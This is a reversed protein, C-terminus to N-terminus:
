GTGRVQGNADFGPASRDFDSFIECDQQTASNPAQGSIMALYNDLSWHGIGYYHTLLAGQKPLERALYPAPSDPGFTVRYSQNELVIVFVHRPTSTPLTAPPAPDPPTSTACAALMAVLLLTTTRGLLRQGIGLTNRM